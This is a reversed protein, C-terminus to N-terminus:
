DNADTKNPFLTCPYTIEADFLKHIKQGAEIYHTGNHLVTGNFLNM